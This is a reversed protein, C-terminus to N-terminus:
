SAWSDPNWCLDRQNGFKQNKCKKHKYTKTCWCTVPVFLVGNAVWTGKPSQDEPISMQGDTYAHETESAVSLSCSGVEASPCPARGLGLRGAESGETDGAARDWM